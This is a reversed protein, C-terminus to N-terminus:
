PETATTQDVEIFDSSSDDDDSALVEDKVALEDQPVDRASQPLPSPPESRTLSLSLQVLSALNIKEPSRFDLVNYGNTVNAYNPDDRSRSSYTCPPDPHHLSCQLPLRDIM